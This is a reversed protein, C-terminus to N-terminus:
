RGTALAIADLLERRWALSRDPDVAVEVVHLGGTGQASGLAPIVEDAREVLTHGAGAARTLAGLDAGHPTVFLERHEPLERQPLLSFVEGGGNNVVVLVADVERRANWVIAGIDVLYSLDGLLAV